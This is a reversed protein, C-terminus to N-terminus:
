MTRFVNYTKGVNYTKYQYEGKDGCFIFGDSGGRGCKDHYGLFMMLRPAPYSQSVIYCATGIRLAKIEEVELPIKSSDPYGAKKLHNLREVCHDDFYIKSM